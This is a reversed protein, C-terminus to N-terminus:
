KPNSSGESADNNTLRTEQQLTSLHLGFPRLIFSAAPRSKNEFGDMDVVKKSYYDPMSVLGTKSPRVWFPFGEGQFFGYKIVGIGGM